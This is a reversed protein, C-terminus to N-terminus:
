FLSAIAAIGGRLLWGIAVVGAQGGFAWVVATRSRQPRIGLGELAGLCLWASAGLALFRLGETAGFVFPVLSVAWAAYVRLSSRRDGAVLTILIALRVGAWALAGASRAVSLGLAGDTIWGTFFSATAGLLLARVGLSAVRDIAAPDLGGLVGPERLVRVSDRVTGIALSM